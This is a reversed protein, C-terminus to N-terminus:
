SNIRFLNVSGDTFLGAIFTKSGCQELYSSIMAASTAGDVDYDGFIGVPRSNVVEDVLRKVGKELDKFLFPEPLLNKLKPTFFNDFDDLNIEKFLLYPSIFNPLNYKQSLYDVFRRTLDDLVIIKWDANSVSKKSNYLITKSM